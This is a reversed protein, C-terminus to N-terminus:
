YSSAVSRSRVTGPNKRVLIQTLDNSVITAPVALMDSATKSWVVPAWNNGEASAFGAMVADAIDVLRDYCATNVLESGATGAGTSDTFDSESLPGFHWGGRFRKGRKATRKLLYAAIKNNYGDGSIAGVDTQDFTVYPDEVDELYRVDIASLSYNANLAACVVTAVADHFGDAINAKVPDNSTSVRRYHFVNVIKQPDGGEPTTVGRMVIEAHRIDAMAVSM